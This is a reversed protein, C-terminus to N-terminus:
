GLLTEAFFRITNGNVLRAVDPSYNMHGPRAFFRGVGQHVQATIVPNKEMLRVIRDRTPSPITEDLAAFHLLLPMRVDHAEDLHQELDRGYYVATSDIDSRVAMLYALLGGLGYGVAGVRGVCKESKRLFALSSLLDCVGAEIDFGKPIQGVLQIHKQRWFLDPCLVVYGKAAFDDCVQRMSQDAGYTDHIVLLGAGSGRAPTTYYADLFDGELSSIKIDTM